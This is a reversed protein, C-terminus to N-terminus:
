LAARKAKRWADVAKKIHAQIKPLNAQTLPGIIQKAEAMAKVKVDAWENKCKYCWRSGPGADKFCDKCHAM